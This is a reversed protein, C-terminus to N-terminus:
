KDACERSIQSLIAGAQPNQIFNHFQIQQEALLSRLDLMNVGTTKFFDLDLIFLDYIGCHSDVMINSHVECPNVLIIDGAKATVTETEIMMTVSGSLIHKIELMEHWLSIRTPNPKSQSWLLPFNKQEFVIADQKVQPM